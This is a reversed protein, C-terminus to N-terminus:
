SIQPYIIDLTLISWKVHLVCVTYMCSFFMDPPALCAINRDRSLVTELKNARMLLMYMYMGSIAGKFIDVVTSSVVITYVGQEPDEYSLFTEWGNNAVYDRRILEVQICSACTYLVHM